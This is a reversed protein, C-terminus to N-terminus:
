QRAFKTHTATISEARENQSYVTEHMFQLDNYQQAGSTATSVIFTVTRFLANLECPVMLYFYDGM